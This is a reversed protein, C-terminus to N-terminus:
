INRADPELLRLPYRVRVAKIKPRLTIDGNEELKSMEDYTMGFSSMSFDNRLRKLVGKIQDLVDFYTEFTTGNNSEYRIIARKSICQFPEETLDFCNKKGEWEKQAKEWKDLTAVQLKLDPILKAQEIYVSLRDMTDSISQADVLHREPMDSDDSNYFDDVWQAVDEIEARKEEIQIADNGNVAIKLVNRDRVEPCDECPPMEQPLTLRLGMDRDMTTTVLWFILLLFAIDAMSGANIEPIDRKAM